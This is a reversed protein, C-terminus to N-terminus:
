SYVEFIKLKARSGRLLYVDGPPIGFHRALAKRIADNAKGEVPAEKVAVAYTSDDLQEIYERKANPKAYVTVRMSM